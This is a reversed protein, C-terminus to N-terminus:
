LLPKGGGRVSSRCWVMVMVVVVGRWGTAAWPWDTTTWEVVCM